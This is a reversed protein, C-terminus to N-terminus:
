ILNVFYRMPYAYVKEKKKDGKNGYFIALWFDKSIAMYEGELITGRYRKNNFRFDALVRDSHIDRLINYSVKFDYAEVYEVSFDMKSLNYAEILRGIYHITEMFGLFLYGLIGVLIGVLLAIPLSNDTRESDSFDLLIIVVDVIFASVFVLLSKIIGKIAYKYIFNVVKKRQEDTLTDM